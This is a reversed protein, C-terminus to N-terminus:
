FPQRELAYGENELLNLVGKEGGLHAAGAAVIIMDHQDAAGLIVPMWAINRRILLMDEVEAFMRRMDEATYGPVAQSRLRSYEWIEVHMERFYAEILTAYMADADYNMALGAELMEIQEEIPDSSFMRLLTASDELSQMPTGTEVAHEMIMHDLGRVGRAMDAMACPPIGLIMSLYWPQFKAAMFAPIQRERAADALNQWSEESMLEPLTPGDTLMLLEPKRTLREQLAREDDLTIEVLLMEADDILPKLRELAPDLRPDYAHVTGVVHIVSDDKQARWHNGVPYPTASVADNLRARDQTTLGALEDTGTCFALVPSALWILTFIFFARM